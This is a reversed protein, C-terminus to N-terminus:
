FLVIIMQYYQNKFIELVEFFLEILEYNKKPDSLKEFLKLLSKIDPRGFHNVAKLGTFM